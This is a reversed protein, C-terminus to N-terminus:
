LTVFKCAETRVKESLLPSRKATKSAENPMTQPASDKVISEFVSDSQQVILDSKEITEPKRSRRADVSGRHHRPHSIEVSPPLLSRQYADIPFFNDSTSEARIGDVWRELEWEHGAYLTWSRGTKACDLQLAYPTPARSKLPIKKQYFLM